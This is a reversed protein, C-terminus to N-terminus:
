WTLLCVLPHILKPPSLPTPTTVDDKEGVPYFIYLYLCRRSPTLDFPLLTAFSFIVIIRAIDEQSFSPRPSLLGFYEM